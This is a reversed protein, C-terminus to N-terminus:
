FLISAVIIVRICEKVMQHLGHQFCLFRSFGHIDDNSAEFNAWNTSPLNFDGVLVTDEDTRCLFDICECLLKM